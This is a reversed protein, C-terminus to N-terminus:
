YPCAINLIFFQNIESFFLIIFMNIVYSRTLKIDSYYINFNISKVTTSM